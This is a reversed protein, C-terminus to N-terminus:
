QTHGGERVQAIVLGLQRHRCGNVVADIVDSDGPVGQQRMGADVNHPPAAAEQGVFPREFGEIMYEVAPGVRNDVFGHHQRMPLLEAQVEVEQFDLFRHQARQLLLVLPGGRHDGVAVKGAV